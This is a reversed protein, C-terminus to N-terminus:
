VFHSASGTSARRRPLTSHIRPMGPIAGLSSRTQCGSAASGGEAPRQDQDNRRRAETQDVFPVFKPAHFHHYIAAPARKWDHMPM